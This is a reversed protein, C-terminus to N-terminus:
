ESPPAAAHIVGRVPASRSLVARFCDELSADPLCDCREAACRAQDARFGLNRLGNILDLKRERAAIGADDVARDHDPPIESSKHPVDPDGSVKAKRRIAAARRAEERKAKMFGDGFVREAEYQNHARCLLRIGDVTAQGGRAVPDIHDFELSETAPCREGTESVFTCRGQDRECVRRKVDAPIHRPDGSPTRGPRPRSTAAFKRKETQTIAIDLARELVEAIDGSPITHRLLSQLYRLKDHAEQRLTTQLAFRQPALPEVKTKTAPTEVPRAALELSASEPRQDDTPADEVPRAALQEVVAELRTPRDPRPFREAILREIESRTRHVAASLIEKANEPRLYPKLLIVANLTLRGEAIETFIAPFRRAVRAARIRKLAADESLHLEHVCYAFMSPYAAPLYLKRSDFEALYALMEAVTVCDRAVVATLGHAVAHNGLHSLSYYTM